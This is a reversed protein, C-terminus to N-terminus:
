QVALQILDEESLGESTSSPSKNDFLDNQPVAPVPKAQALFEEFGEKDKSAYSLAWDKQDPHLKKQAIASEVSLNALQNKLSENESQLAQMAASNEPQTQALPLNPTPKSNPMATEEHNLNSSKLDGLEELFPTNTLAISHLSWGLDDGSVPDITHQIYTPSLYRYEEKDIAEKAEPFWEIQAYIAADVQKLEKCWGAAPAYFSYLTSHEWDVEIDTQRTAHNKLFIALDEESIEFPGHRHGKWEGTLIVPYWQGAPQNAEGEGKLAVLRDLVILNKM